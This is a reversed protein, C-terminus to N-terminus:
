LFDKRQPTFADLLISDDELPICGHLANSPFHISDGVKVIQSEKNEDNEIVFKFSGNLVYTLQEHLHSHLTINENPQTKKFFVKVYMIEDSNALVKRTTNNDVLDLKINSDKFFM